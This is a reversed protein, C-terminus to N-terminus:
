TLFYNFNDEFIEGESGAQIIEEVIRNSIDFKYKKLLVSLETLKQKANPGQVRILPLLRQSICYDLPKNDEYMINKAVACYRKIAIEVRPSIFIKISEFIKKIEKYKEEYDTTWSITRSESFDRLEFLEICHLFPLNLSEIENDHLNEIEFAKPNMKIINARDIVRPSLEETTQDYNITGIFRLNNAYEITESEGLNIKLFNNKNCTSDTLNYFLSWYHELPSLNAEDLLVYSLPSQLFTNNAREWDLQKLLSYLNTSSSHFQKSLPNFFGILDKQSTWGRSISIEKNREKPSLLNTLLRVLSTKGTGPLGAFLTLTNQHISILLNDIFHTEFKRNNKELIGILKNKFAKYVDLKNENTLPSIDEIQFNKFVFTKKTGELSLDRGSIFDYHTKHKILESLQKQANEQTQGFSEKLMQISTDLEREVIKKERIKNETEELDLSKKEREIQIEEDLQAKRQELDLIINDLETKSKKLEDEKVKSINELENRLLNVENQVRELENQEQTKKGEYSVIETQLTLREEKLNELDKKIYNLEPLIKGLTINSFLDKESNKLLSKLRQNNKENALLRDSTSTKKIFDMLKTLVEPNYEDPNNSFSSVFKEILEEDNIFEVEEILKLKNFNPVIIKRLLGNASFQIYTEDNIEYNGFRRWPSKRIIIDGSSDAKIANFPGLLTGETEVFFSNTSQLYVDKILIGLLPDSVSFKSKGEEIKGEFVEIIENDSLEHVNTHFTLCRPFTSGEYYKDNRIITGTSIKILQNLSFRESLPIIDSLTNKTALIKEGMEYEDIDLVKGNNNYLISILSSNPYEEDKIVLVFDNDSFKYQHDNFSFTSESLNGKEM